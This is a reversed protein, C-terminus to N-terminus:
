DAPFKDDVGIGSKAGCNAGSYSKSRIGLSRMRSLNACTYGEDSPNPIEGVPRHLRTAAMRTSVHGSLGSRLDFVSTFIRLVGFGQCSGNSAYMARLAVILADMTKSTTASCDFGFSTRPRRSSFEAYFPAFRRLWRQNQLEGM